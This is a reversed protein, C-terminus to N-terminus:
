DWKPEEWVVGLADAAKREAACVKCDPSNRTDEFYGGDIGDPWGANPGDEVAHSSGSFSLLETLADRLRACEAELEALRIQELSM